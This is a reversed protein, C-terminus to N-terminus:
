QRGQLAAVAAQVGPDDAGSIEDWEAPARVDPVIGTVEWDDDTVIPDFREFAIWARSGGEFDFARLVEVNGLTREGVITARKQDQLIGSSIEGYSVTGPGVLVALPVTQSGAVDNADINVPRVDRRSRFHGVLGHTFLGLLAEGDSIAGGDNQRNDLIVGTLRGDASLERLAQEVQDPITDDFLTPILIYAIRTGPVLWYDIPVAGTIQARVLNVDRVPGDHTQVTLTLPLGAPGRIRETHLFGDAGLLSMGDVALLRDHPQLGALEAPSNKFTVIISAYGKDPHAAILVGIGAYDNAGALARESDAVAEPSEFRSHEDGLEALMEDMTAYFDHDSQGAEVRARYEAGIAKWDHGNFDPYVYRTNVTDWLRQFIRLHRRQAATDPTAAVAPETFTPVITLTPFVRPTPTPTATPPPSPSSTFTATETLTPTFTPPPTPTGLLATMVTSCALGTLVLLM